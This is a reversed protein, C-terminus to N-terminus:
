FKISKKVWTHYVVKSMNKNKIQGPPTSIEFVHNVAGTEYALKAGKGGDKV